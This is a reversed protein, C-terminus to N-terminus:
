PRLLATYREPPELLNQRKARELKSLSGANEPEHGEEEM